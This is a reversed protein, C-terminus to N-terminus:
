EASRTVKLSYHVGEDTEDARLSVEYHAEAYDDTANFSYVGEAAEYGSVNGLWAYGGSANLYGVALVHVLTEGDFFLYALFNQDESLVSRFTYEEVTAATVENGQMTFSIYYGVGVHTASNADYSVIWVANGALAYGTDLSVIAAGDKFLTANCPKGRMENLFGYGPTNEVNCYELYKVGVAYGDGADIRAYRSFSLLTYYNDYELFNVAYSTGKFSFVIEYGDGYGTRNANVTVGEGTVNEFTIPESFTEADYLYHFYGSYYPGRLVIPGFGIFDKIIKGGAHVAEDVYNGRYDQLTVSKFGAEVTFTSASADGQHYDFSIAYDVTDYTVRPAHVGNTYLNLTFGPYEKEEIIFLTDLDYNSGRALTFRISAPIPEEELANGEEDYLEVTGDISLAEGDWLFYDKGGYSYAPGGTFAPLELHLFGEREYDTVYAHVANEEVLYYGRETSGIYITGEAGFVIYDLASTLYVQGYSSYDYIRFSHHENDLTLYAATGYRESAYNFTFDLFGKEEDIVYYYGEGSFGRDATYLTGLGYGDLVLVNWDDDVYYGYTSADHIVCAYTGSGEYYILTARYAGLPYKENFSATILIEPVAADLVEYYGKRETGLGNSAILGGRGDFTVLYGGIQVYSSDVLYWSGYAADLAYFSKASLEFYRGGTADERTFYVVSRSAASYVGQLTGNEADTFSARYFGDLVLTGGGEATYEGAYTADYIFYVPTVNGLADAMPFIIFRFREQGGILLSYVTDGFVTKGAEEYGVNQWNGDGHDDNYVANGQGDLVLDVVYRGQRLDEDYYYFYLRQELLDEAPVATLSGDDDPKLLFRLLVNGESTGYLFTAFDGSFYGSATRTFSGEIVENGKIYLSGVGDLSAYRNALLTGGDAVAIEDYRVEDDYKFVIYVGHQRFDETGIVSTLYFVLTEPTESAYGEMAQTRTFTYLAYGSGLQRATVSGKAGCQVTKGGDHTVYIEARNDEYLVLLPFDLGESLLYYEAYDARENELARFTGGAGMLFRYHKGDTASLTIVTGTMYDTSVEYTGSLTGSETQWIASDGFIGYGDLTLREGGNQYEGRTDDAFVYGNYDDQLPMTYFYAEVEQGEEGIIGYNDVIDCVIKFFPTEPQGYMGQVIYTGMLTVPYGGISQYLMATNYGDLILLDGYSVGQGTTRDILWYDMYIGAEAGAIAFYAPHEAGPDDDKAFLCNFSIGDGQFLYDGNNEDFLLVGEHRTGSQTFAAELNAGVSLTTLADYHEGEEDYTYLVYEGTLDARDYSFTDAFIKGSLLTGGATTFSFSNGDRTGEFERGGRQLVAKDPATRPFFILDGSGFRDRYGRDWVAYLLLPDTVQLQEGAAYKVNGSSSDSWGAFRYGEVSFGCAPLQLSGEYVVQEASMTGVATTGLPANAAYIVAYENRDYYLRFVNKAPDEGLTLSTVAGVAQGESLTFDAFAPAAPSVTEGLYGSGSALTDGGVYANGAVNEFFLEVVYGVTYKATLTVAQAPMTSQASLPQGDLYWEGFPLGGKTPAIDKVAERLNQGEKLWYSTTALTGGDPDLTLLYGTEWRAFYTTDSEPASMTGEYRTGSFDEATYWGDFASAEKAPTPLTVTEKPVASYQTESTGDRFTLTVTGENCAGLICGAALMLVCSLAALFIRFHKKM